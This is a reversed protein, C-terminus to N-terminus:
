APRRDASSRTAAAACVLDCGAEILERFSEHGRLPPATRSDVVGSGEDVLLPLGRRGAFDTLDTASVGETFGRIRFNSAFVKLVLSTAPRVAREYDALRTRNTTGVEVLRCGSERLIDPIRFSGGIEVLEGRSLLVERGSALTSLALVLAAANNNVVLAAEAGTLFRLLREVRLGRDARRGTALDMELDCYADLRSSLGDVVSRPLPARGLNTHLFVGTANLVRRLPPAEAELASRVLEPIRRIRESLEDDDIGGAIEGRLRELARAAQVRTARGETYDQSNPM